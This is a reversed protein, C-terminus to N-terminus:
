MWLGGQIVVNTNGIDQRLEGHNDLRQEDDLLQLDVQASLKGDVCGEEAPDPADGAGCDATRASLPLTVIAM